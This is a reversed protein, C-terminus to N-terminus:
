RGTAERPVKPTPMVHGSVYGYPRLARARTSDPRWAGESPREAGARAGRAFPSPRPRGRAQTPRAPAQAPARPPRHYPSPQGPRRVGLPQAPALLQPIKAAQHRTGTTNRTPWQRQTTPPVVRRGGRGRRGPTGATEPKSVWAAAPLGLLPPDRMPAGRRGSPTAAVLATGTGPARRQPCPRGQQLM